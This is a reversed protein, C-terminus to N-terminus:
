ELETALLICGNQPCLNHIEFCQDKEAIKTFHLRESVLSKMLKMSLSSTAVCDFYFYYVM